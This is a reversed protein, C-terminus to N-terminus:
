AHSETRFKPRHVPGCLTTIFNCAGDSMAAWVAAVRTNFSRYFNLRNGVIHASGIWGELGLLPIAAPDILMSPTIM